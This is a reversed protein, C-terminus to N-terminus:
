QTWSSTRVYCDSSCAPKTSVPDGSNDDSSSLGGAVGVLQRSHLIRVTQPTLVLPKRAAAMKKM